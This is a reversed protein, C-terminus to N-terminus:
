PQKSLGVIGSNNFVVQIDALSNHIDSHYGINMTLTGDANKHVEFKDIAAGLISNGDM